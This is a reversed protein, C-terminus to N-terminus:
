ASVAKLVIFNVIMAGTDATSAHQNTLTLGFSGDAVATVAPVSTGATQGSRACVIVVDGVAVKNNTVTCTAEAGAALSTADTTIAGCLAHVTVGTARSTAQTVAGGEAYGLGVDPLVLDAPAQRGAGTSIVATLTRAM